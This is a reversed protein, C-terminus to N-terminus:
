IVKEIESQLLQVKSSARSMTAYHLEECLANMKNHHYHHIITAVIGIEKFLIASIGSLSSRFRRVDVMREKKRTLM